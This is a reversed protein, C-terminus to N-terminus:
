KHYAGGENIKFARYTQELLMVRFLQHPFTMKSLSLRLDARQKVEGSLGYSSGIVFCIRKGENAKQNLLQALEESSIGKGEVCLAILYADKPINKFILDSEKSLANEIEAASPNEPLSVPNLECIKLDCYRSLRKEYESCAERLYKEKLKGLTIFDVKM